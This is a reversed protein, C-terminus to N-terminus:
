IEAIEKNKELKGGTWEIIEEALALVETSTHVNLDGDYGGLLHLYNYASNFYQLIKKNEVSLAKRYKDVDPREKKKRVKIVDDLVVLVDTYATNFAMKVYKPDTYFKGKKGAKTSLIEWANNIYRKAELYSNKELM